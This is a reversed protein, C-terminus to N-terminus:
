PCINGFVTANRVGTWPAVPAPARWRGAGAPSAAYPIGLYACSQARSAGQLAGSDITLQCAAASAPSSQPQPSSPRAVAAPVVIVIMLLTFFALFKALSSAPGSEMRM